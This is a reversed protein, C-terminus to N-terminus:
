GNEQIFGVRRRPANDTQKGAQMEALTQNILELQMRTDENIDNQDSFMDEVYQRLEQIDDQLRGTGNSPASGLTQRIAVFARVILINIQIAPESKFVSALMAVGHETFAYPLYRLGGWNSTVFQSRM